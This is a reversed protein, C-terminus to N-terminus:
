AGAPRRRHPCASAPRRRRGCRPAHPAHVALAQGRQQLLQADAARAACRGSRDRRAARAAAARRRRAAPRPRRCRTRVPQARGEAEPREGLARFRADIGPHRRRGVGAPRGDHQGVARWPRARGCSFGAAGKSIGSRLRSTTRPVPAAMPPRTARPARAAITRYCRMSAGVAALAM